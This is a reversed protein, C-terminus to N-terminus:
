LFSTVFLATHAGFYAAMFLALAAAYVVPMLYPFRVLERYSSRYDAAIAFLVEVILAHGIMDVKGFTFVAGIFMPPLMIAAVRRVLPTCVLAFALAFEVAGAARM